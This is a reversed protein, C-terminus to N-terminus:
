FFESEEESIEESSQGKKNKREKTQTKREGMKQTLSTWKRKVPTPEVYDKDETKDSESINDDYMEYKDIKRIKNQLRRHEIELEKKWNRLKSLREREYMNEMDLVRCELCQYGYTTPYGICIIKCTKYEYTKEM